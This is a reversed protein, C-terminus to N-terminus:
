SDHREGSQKNGATALFEQIAAAPIIIRKRADGARISKIQGSDIMAYILNKSVGILSACELPSYALRQTNDTMPVERNKEGSVKM